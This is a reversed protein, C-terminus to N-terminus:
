IRFIASIQAVCLISYAEWNLANNNHDSIFLPYRYTSIFHETHKIATYEDINNQETRNQAHINNEIMERSIVNVLMFNPEFDMLYHFDLKSAQTQKKHLICALGM